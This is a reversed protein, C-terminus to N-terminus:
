HRRMPCERVSAWAVASNGAHDVHYTLLGPCARRTRGLALRFPAGMLSDSTCRRATSSRWKGPSGRGNRAAPRTTPGSMPEIPPGLLRLVARQSMGTSLHEEQLNEVMRRRANGDSTGGCDRHSREAKWRASDFQHRSIWWSRGAFASAVALLAIAGLILWPRRTRM